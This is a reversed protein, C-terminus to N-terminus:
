RPLNVNETMVYTVSKIDSLVIKMFRLMKFINEENKTSRYGIVPEDKTSFEFLDQNLLM